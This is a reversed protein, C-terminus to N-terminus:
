AIASFAPCVPFTLERHRGVDTSAAIGLQQNRRKLSMFLNQVKGSSFTRRDCSFQTATLALM